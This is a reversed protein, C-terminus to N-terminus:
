IEQDKQKLFKNVAQPSIGLIRAAHSQNGHATNLAKLILQKRASSLFKDLQFGEQPEPLADLPDSISIPETILIDDAQLVDKRCLRASREISNELDRVNGLWSHSQLRSLADSSLRKPRRLTKNLRDLIHLALTPIDSRRDRLPPLIIEGVNLRYYLDERFKGDRVMQQLDCNTAALLRVDIHHGSPQGLPEVIGDQLVRLLKAQAPMPLEGLEDLFLTGGDAMDFKGKQETAAGTFAGRKHGFLISELLNEPLAGCNVPIFLKHPRGSLQHIYKAFLEKGTGTEGLILIPATSQALMVGTQLAKQITFHDGVIGLQNKVANADVEGEEVQVFPDTQFRVSPFQPSSMDVITIFPQNKTVFQPPRTHLIQAPFEGSAVLLLWCAHMQPTGSAVAVYFNASVFEETITRANRRLTELIRKYDTPDDLSTEVVHIHSQSHIESIAKQTNQTIERTKPTDFLFVHDFYHANLISLIPGPHEAGDVLGKSYPDHFGTFTLLVEL